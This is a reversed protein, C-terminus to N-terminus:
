EKSFKYSMYTCIVAWIVILALLVCAAATGKAFVTSILMICGCIMGTIGGFRQSKRWAEDSKMSWPTRLGIIHNKRLKPMFNSIVALFLGTVALIIRNVDPLAVSTTDYRIAIISFLANLSIFMATIAAGTIVLVKEEAPDKRTRAMIVMFAAMLAALFPFILYVYRSGMSDADGSINFHIPVTDPMMSILIAASAFALAVLIAIIYYYKKM